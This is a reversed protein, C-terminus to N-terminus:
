VASFQRPGACSNQVRVFYLDAQLLQGTDPSSLGNSIAFLKFGLQEAYRILDFALAQGAYLEVLSGEMQLAVVHPLIKEAGALVEAEFGQTDIKLYIKDTSRFGGAFVEDLRKVDVEEENIFRSEPAAETHAKKMDRLSSSASNGSLNIKTRTTAAGLAMRDAVKWNKVGLANETLIAHASTQPEFSIVDIRPKFALLQQAFQGVNAGVDLVM